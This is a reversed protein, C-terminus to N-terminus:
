ADNPKPLPLNEARCISELQGVSWPANFDYFTSYPQQLLELVRASQPDCWEPLANMAEPLPAGSLKLTILPQLNGPHLSLQELGGNLIQKRAMLLIRAGENQLEQM